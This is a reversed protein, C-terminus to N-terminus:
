YRIRPDIVAYLVDVVLNLIVYAVSYILSIAMLVPFDRRFVSTVAINGIGPVASITEIIFTGTILGAVVLGLVTVVPILANRLVHVTITELERLGKARATRVYDQGLVEIVSQRIQRALLAAPRVGLAVAPIIAQQVSGWGAVPLLNLQLAFIWILLPAVVFIPVSVGAVAFSMGLYDVLSNQRLAALIGLPVALLVAIGTAMLGLMASVPLGDVVISAVSRDRYYFSTGFDGHAANWVYRLYQELLPRDLGLEHRVRAVVVPDAKEGMTISIPDGPTAAMLGFVIVSIGIFVPMSLALRRAIYRGM